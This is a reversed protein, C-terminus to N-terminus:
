RSIEQEERTIQGGLIGQNDRLSAAIARQIEDNDTAESTLDIVGLFLVCIKSCCLFLLWKIFLRNQMFIDVQGQFHNCTGSLRKTRM